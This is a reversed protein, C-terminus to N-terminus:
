YNGFIEDAEAMQELFDPDHERLYDLRKQEEDTITHKAAKQLLIELESKVPEVYPEVDVVLWRDAFTKIVATDGENVTMTMRVRDSLKVWYEKGKQSRVCVYAPTVTIIRQHITDPEGDSIVEKIRTGKYTRYRVKRAM